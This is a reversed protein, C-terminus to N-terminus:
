YKHNTWHIIKGTFDSNFWNLFQRPSEFGDNYALQKITNFSIVKGDITINLFAGKKNYKIKIKQVSVCPIVPAFQFRNKTRNGIVPHINNGAKWRNPKDERISHIKPKCNKSVKLDFQHGLTHYGISKMIKEPFYTPEGNPWKTKFSLTM